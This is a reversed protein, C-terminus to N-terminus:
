DILDYLEISMKRYIKIVDLFGHNKRELAHLGRSVIFTTVGVATSIMTPDPMSLFVFSVNRIKESKSEEESTGKIEKIMVSAMRAYDAVTNKRKKISEITLSVSGVVNRLEKESSLEIVISHGRSKVPEIL